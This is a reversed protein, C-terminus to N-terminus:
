QGGMGPDDFLASFLGLGLLGMGGVALGTVMPNGEYRRYYGQVWPAYDPGAQWYPVQNAGVAVTRIWPTRGQALRSADAACAPVKRPVGGDPSWMVDTTSPGHSPDFFCPPRMEPLPEGAVRARVCAVSQRGEELAETVLSVVGTGRDQSLLTKARDYCDIAHTWDQQAEASLEQGALDVDLDRLAEGFNTVDEETAGRIRSVQAEIARARKQEVERAQRQARSLAAFTTVTGLVFVLLLLLQGM